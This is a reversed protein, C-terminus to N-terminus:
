GRKGSFIIKVIIEALKIKEKTVTITKFESYCEELVDNLIEKDREKLECFSKDM